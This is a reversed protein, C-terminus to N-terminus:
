GGKITVSKSLARGGLPIKGTLLAKRDGKLLVLHVPQFGSPVFVPFFTDNRVEDIVDHFPVGLTPIGIAFHSKVVVEFIIQLVANARFPVLRPM